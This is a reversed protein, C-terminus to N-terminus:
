LRGGFEDYDEYDDGHAIALNFLIRDSLSVVVNVEALNKRLLTQVVGFMVNTDRVYIGAGNDIWVPYQGTSCIYPCEMPCYCALVDPNDYKFQDLHEYDQACAFINSEKVQMANMDHMTPTSPFYARRNDWGTVVFREYRNENFGLPRYYLVSLFAFYDYPLDVPLVLRAFCFSLRDDQDAIGVYM